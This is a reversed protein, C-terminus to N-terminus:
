TGFPISTRIPCSSGNSQSFKSRQKTNKERFRRQQVMSIFRKTSIASSSSYILLEELRLLLEIGYTNLECNNTKRALVITTKKFSLTARVVQTHTFTMRIKMKTGEGSARASGRGKIKFRQTLLDSTVSFIPSVLTKVKSLLNGLTLSIRQNKLKEKMKPLNKFRPLPM